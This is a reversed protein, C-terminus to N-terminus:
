LRHEKIYNQMFQGIVENASIHQQQCVKDFDHLLKPDSNIVIRFTDVVENTDHWDDSTDIESDAMTSLKSLMSKQEANLPPPKEGKRYIKEVLTSKDQTITPM